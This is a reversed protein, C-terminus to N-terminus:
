LTIKENQMLVLSEMTAFTLLAQLCTLPSGMAGNLNDHLYNVIFSNNTLLMRSEETNNIATM